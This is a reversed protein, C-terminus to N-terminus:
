RAESESRERKRLIESENTKLRGREREREGERLPIGHNGKLVGDSTEMTSAEVRKTRESM